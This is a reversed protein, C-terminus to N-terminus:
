TLALMLYTTLNAGAHLGVGPWISGSAKRENLWGAALAILFAFGIMGAGILNRAEPLILVPLHIAAFLSAQAINGGWLGLRKYLRKAILGRFVLEEAFATKILAVTALAILAAVDTRGGAVQHVVTGPASAVESLGPIQLLAIATLAGTASALAVLGAPASTLGLWTLLGARKRAFIAWAGFCLLAAICVQIITGLAADSLVRDM